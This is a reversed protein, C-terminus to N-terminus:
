AMTGDDLLDSADRTEARRVIEAAIDRLKRNRSQSARSIRAFADDPSDGYLAMVIGKALDITSRSALAHKMQRSLREIEHRSELHHVVSGITGALLDAVRLAEAGFARPIPSYANLVGVVDNRVMVPVALVSEVDLDQVSKRFAPWRTEERLDDCVITHATDWASQCPGEGSTVQAGDILQALMNASAADAPEVPQGLNVSVSVSTGPAIADGSAAAAARLATHTSSTDLPLRALDSLVNAVSAPGPRVGAGDTSLLLVWEVGQERPLAAAVATAHANVWVPPRHRPMVALHEERREGPSLGAIIARVAHRDAAAVFGPFHTGVLRHADMGILEAAAVNAFRVMGGAGTELRAVRLVTRLRERLWAAGAHDRILQSIEEDQARLVEGTGAPEGHAPERGAFPGGDDPPARAPLSPVRAVRAGAFEYSDRAGGPSM